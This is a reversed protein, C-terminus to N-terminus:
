LTHSLMMLLRECRRRRTCGRRSSRCCAWSSRPWCCSRAPRIWSARWSTTARSWSSTRWRPSTSSATCRRTSSSWSSATLPPVPPTATLTLRPDLEAILVRQHKKKKQTKAARSWSRVTRVRRQKQFLQELEKEKNTLQLEMDHSRSEFREYDQFPLFKM